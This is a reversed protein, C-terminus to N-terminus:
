SNRPPNFNYTWTFRHFALTVVNELNLTKRISLKQKSWYHITVGFVGIPVLRSIEFIVFVWKQNVKKRVSITHIWCIDRFWIHITSQKSESVASNCILLTEVVFSAFLEFNATVFQINPSFSKVIFLIYNNHLPWRIQQCNIKTTCTFANMQIPENWDSRTM